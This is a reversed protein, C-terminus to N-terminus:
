DVLSQGRSLINIQTYVYLQRMKHLRRVDTKVKEYLRVVTEVLTYVYLRKLRYVQALM